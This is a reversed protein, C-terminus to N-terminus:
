RLLPQNQNSGSQSTKFHGTVFSMFDGVLPLYESNGAQNPHAFADAVINGLETIDGTHICRVSPDLPLAWRM